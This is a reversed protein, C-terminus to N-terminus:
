FKKFYKKFSLSFLDCDDSSSQFRSVFTVSSREEARKSVREISKNEKQDNGDNDDDNNDEQDYDDDDHEM